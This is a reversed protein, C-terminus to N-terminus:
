KRSVFFAKMVVGPQVGNRQPKDRQKEGTLDSNDGPWISTYDPNSWEVEQSWFPWLLQFM